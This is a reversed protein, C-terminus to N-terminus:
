LAPLFPISVSGLITLPSLLYTARVGAENIDMDAAVERATKGAIICHRWELEIDAAERTPLTLRVM